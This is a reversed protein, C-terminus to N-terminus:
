SVQPYAGVRGSGTLHVCQGTRVRQALGGTSTLVRAGLHEIEHTKTSQPPESKEQKSVELVTISM